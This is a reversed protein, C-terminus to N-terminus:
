GETNIRDIVEVTRQIWSKKARESGRPTNLYEMEKLPGTPLGDDSPESGDDGGALEDGAKAVEIEEPLEGDGRDEFDYDYDYVPRESSPTEEEEFDEGFMEKGAQRGEEGSLEEDKTFEGFAEKSIKRAEEGSLEEGNAYQSDDSKTSDSRTSASEYGPMDKIDDVHIM